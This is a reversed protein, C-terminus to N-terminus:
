VNILFQIRRVFAMARTALLLKIKIQVCVHQNHDLRNLADRELPQNTNESINLIEEISSIANLTRSAGRVSTCVLRANHCQPFWNVAM